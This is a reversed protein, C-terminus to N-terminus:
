KVKIANHEKISCHIEVQNDKIVVSYVGDDLCITYTRAVGLQKLNTTYQHAPSNQKYLKEQEAIVGRNSRCSLTHSRRIAQPIWITRMLVSLGVMAFICVFCAAAIVKMADRQNGLGSM